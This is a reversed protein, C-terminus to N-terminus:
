LGVRLDHLICVTGRTPMQAPYLFVGTCAGSLIHECADDGVQEDSKSGVLTLNSKMLNSGLLTLNSKM